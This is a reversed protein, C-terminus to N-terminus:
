DNRKEKGLSAHEPERVPDVGQRGNEHRRVGLASLALGALVALPDFIRRLGTTLHRESM